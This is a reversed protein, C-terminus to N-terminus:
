LRAKQWNGLQSSASGRNIGQSELEDMWVKRMALVVGVDTPKGAAEWAADAHAWIIDKQGGRQVKAHQQSGSGQVKAGLPSRQVQVRSGTCAIHLPLAPLQAVKAKLESLPTGTPEINDIANVIGQVLKEERVDVPDDGTVNRYLLALDYGTFRGIEAPTNGCIYYGNQRCKIDALEVLANVSLNSAERTAIVRLEDLNILVDLM